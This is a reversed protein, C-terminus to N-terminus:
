RAPTAAAPSSRARTCAGDGPLRRLHELHDRHRPLRRRVLQGARPQDASTDQVTWSVTLPDGSKVTAPSPLTISTVALNSPPPPDIVLPPALYLSNNDENAGGGEFVKGIASDTPPDTIVFLYYPGSLDAPVQVQRRSRTAPAPRGPRGPADVMGLYRDAKLDLNTDASFYILDDWTPMTPPTGAGLNTVTYTVDLTQGQISM